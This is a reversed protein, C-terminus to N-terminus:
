NEKKFLRDPTLLYTLPIDFIGQTKGFVLTNPKNPIKSGSIELLIETDLKRDGRKFVVYCGVIEAKTPELVNIIKSLSKGTTFVDDIVAVKDKENPVYGDIWSCKGHNKPEDRILALNLGYKSSIVSAPSLGGYGATAICTTKKDIIDYLSDSILNLTDPYGYAKKVDIYLDSM